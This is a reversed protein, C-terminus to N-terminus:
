KTASAKKETFFFLILLVVSVMSAISGAVDGTRAYVTMATNANLTSKIADPTWWKTPQLIDGRQNIFCSIGTNASRAISRRLEIARLTAYKLHQRYGPTDSWWGDNTIIFILSAGQKIYDTMYDGYISEYCIVPAITHGATSSTFVSPIEQMGLSGSIGGLDIAFADLHKFLEPFPMKEVGPVLKSKHHLQIDGAPQLQMATNFSDYYGEAQTFKRATATRQNSDPYFKNSALGIVWTVDPYQAQFNKLREIQPHRDLEEEWIGDPLATEPAVVYDTTSDTVSASLTLIRQLQEASSMGSFKENYPDINPQVVAINVPNPTEEYTHYRFISYAVPVIVLSIVIILNRTYHSNGNRFLKTALVNYLLINVVWIWITGGLVGTFEYWQIMRQWGAFGNGLTLWPWSLDWDMHLFEFTVWFVVLSLYGLKNGLKKRTIHFLYFVLAMFLANFFIAAVAGFLSAYKVWWTTLLNFTFFTIYAYIFVFRGSIIPAPKMAADEVFLLPIFAIFLLPAIGSAPWALTLLIGSLFASVLVGSRSNLFQM